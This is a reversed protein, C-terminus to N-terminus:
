KKPFRVFKGRQVQGVPASGDKEDFFLNTTTDVWVNETENFVLGSDQEEEEEDATVTSVDDEEDEKAPEDVVAPKKDKCKVVKKSASEAPADEDDSQEPSTSSSVSAGKAEVAKAKWMAKEEDSLAKWELSAVSVIKQALEKGKLEPYDSAVKERLEDKNASKWFIYPNCTAKKASPSSSAKKGRKSDVKKTTEGSQSPRSVNKAGVSAVPSSGVFVQCLVADKMIADKLERMKKASPDFLNEILVSLKDFTANMVSSTTTSVSMRLELIHPIFSTPQKLYYLM